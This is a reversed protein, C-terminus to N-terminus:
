VQARTLFLGANLAMGTIMSTTWIAQEVLGLPADDADILKQGFGEALFFQQTRDLGIHRTKSCYFLCM